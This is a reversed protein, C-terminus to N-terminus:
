HNWKNGRNGMGMNLAHNFMMVHMRTQYLITNLVLASTSDSANKVLYEYMPIAQNEIRLGTQYAEQISKSKTTKPNIDAPKIKYALYLSDIWRIHNEEQPIIMTYPMSVQFSDYDQQYQARSLVELDYVKNFSDLWEKGPKPLEDPINGIGGQYRGDWRQGCMPCHGPGMGGMQASASVIFGLMVWTIIYIRM